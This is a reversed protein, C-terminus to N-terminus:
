NSDPPDGGHLAGGILIWASDLVELHSLWQMIWRLPGRGGGESQAAEEGKASWKTRAGALKTLADEHATRSKYHEAQQLRCSIKERSSIPL